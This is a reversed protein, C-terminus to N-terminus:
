ALGVILLRLVDEGLAYYRGIADAQEFESGFLQLTLHLLQLTRDGISMTCNGVLVLLCAPVDFSSAPLALCGHSLELLELLGRRIAQHHQHV